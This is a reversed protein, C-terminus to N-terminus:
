QDVCVRHLKGTKKTARGGLELLNNAARGRWKEWKKDVHHTVNKQDVSRV